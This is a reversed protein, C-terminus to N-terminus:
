VPACRFAGEPAMDASISTERGAAEAFRPVSPALRTLLDARTLPPNTLAEAQRELAAEVATPWRAYLDTLFEDPHVAEVAYPDCAGSPFDGVNFTVIAQAGSAVAAALVHRDKPDNPMRSELRAVAHDLVTAADFASNMAATMRQAQGSTARGDAILNRTVEELIRKSWVPAFLESEAARLLTDRLPLPYLVCSDLVVVSAM